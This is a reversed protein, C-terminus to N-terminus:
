MLAKLRQLDIKEETFTDPFLGKLQGLKETVIDLSKGDM